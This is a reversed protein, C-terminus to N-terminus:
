RRSAREDAVEGVSFRRVACAHAYAEPLTALRRREDHRSDWGAPVGELGDCALAEAVLAAATGGHVKKQEHIASLDRGEIVDFSVVHEFHM